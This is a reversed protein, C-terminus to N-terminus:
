CQRSCAALGTAGRASGSWCGASRKRSRANRM